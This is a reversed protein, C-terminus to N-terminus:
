IQPRAPSAPGGVTPSFNLALFDLASRVDSYVLGLERQLPNGGVLEGATPIVTDVLENSLSAVVGVIARADEASSETSITKTRYMTFVGMIVAAAAAFSSFTWLGHKLDFRSNTAPRANRVARLIDAEFGPSPTVTERQTQRAEQRLANTLSDSAHFYAQCESCSAIHRSTRPSTIGCTFRTIRCVLRPHRQSYSFHEVSNM